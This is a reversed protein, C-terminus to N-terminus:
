LDAQGHPTAEEAVREKIRWNEDFITVDGALALGLIITLWFFGCLVVLYFAQITHMDGGKGLLLASYQPILASFRSAGVMESSSCAAGDLLVKSSSRAEPYKSNFLLKGWLIMAFPLSFLIVCLIKEFLILNRPEKYPLLNIRVM